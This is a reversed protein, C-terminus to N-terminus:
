LHHTHTHAHKLMKGQVASPELYQPVLKALLASVTPCLESPKVITPNGGALSGVLPALTLFIPYNFPGIILVAEHLPKRMVSSIGIAFLAPSPVLVPKLWTKLNKLLYDIENLVLLIEGLETETPDKHLDQYVADIWEQKHEVLIRKVAKLQKVRWEYTPFSSTSQEMAKRLAEVNLKKKNSLTMTSGYTPIIAEMPKNRLTKANLRKSAMTTALSFLWLDKKHARFVSVNKRSGPLDPLHRNSESTFLCTRHFESKGACLV